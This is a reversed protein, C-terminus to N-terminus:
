DVSLTAGQIPLTDIVLDKQDASRDFEADTLAVSFTVPEPLPQQGADGAGSTDDDCAVLTALLLLMGVLRTEKM